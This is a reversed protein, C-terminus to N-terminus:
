VKFPMGNLTPIAFTTCLLDFASQLVTVQVVYYNDIVTSKAYWGLGLISVLYSVSFQGINSQTLSLVARTNTM